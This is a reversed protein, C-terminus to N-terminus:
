PLGRFGQPEVIIKYLNTGWPGYSQSVLVFGLKQYLSNAAVRSPRSTLFLKLKINREKSFEHATEMLKKTLAEGIKHGRFAEDVVVDHIEAIWRAINRQFFITAMGLYRKISAEDREVAVFMFFLPNSLAERLEGDEITRQITGPSQQALLRNIEKEDFPKDPVIRRIDLM